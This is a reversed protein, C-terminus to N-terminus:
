LLITFSTPSAVTAKIAIGSVLCIACGFFKNCCIYIPFPQMSDFFLNIVLYNIEAITFVVVM